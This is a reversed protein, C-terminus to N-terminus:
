FTVQNSCWMTILQCTLWEQNSLHNGWEWPSIMNTSNHNTSNSRHCTRDLFRSAEMRIRHINFEIVDIIWPKFIPPLRHCFQVLFIRSCVFRSRPLNRRNVHTYRGKHSGVSAFDAFPFFNRKEREREKEKGGEERSKSQFEYLSLSLTKMKSSSIREETWWTWTVQLLKKWVQSKWKKM